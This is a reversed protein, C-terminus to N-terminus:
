KLMINFFHMYYLTKDWIIYYNERLQSNKYQLESPSFLWFQLIFDCNVMENEIWHHFCVEMTRPIQDNNLQIDHM